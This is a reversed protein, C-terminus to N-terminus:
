AVYLSSHLLQIVDINIRTTQGHFKGSKALVFGSDGDSGASKSEIEVYGYSWLVLLVNQINRICIIDRREGEYITFTISPFKALKAVVVVSFSGWLHKSGECLPNTLSDSFPKVVVLYAASKRADPIKSM